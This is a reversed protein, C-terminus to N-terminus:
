NESFPGLYKLLFRLRPGPNRGTDIRDYDEGWKGLIARGQHQWSVGDGWYGLDM